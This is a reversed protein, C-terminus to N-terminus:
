FADKTAGCLKAEHILAQQIRHALDEDLSAFRVSNGGFQLALSSHEIPTPKVKWSSLIVRSLDVNLFAIEVHGSATFDYPQQGPIITDHIPPKILLTGSRSYMEVIFYDSSSSSSDTYHRESYTMELQCNRIGFQREISVCQRSDCQETIKPLHALLWLETVQATQGVAPRGGLTISIISGLAIGLLLLSRFARNTM